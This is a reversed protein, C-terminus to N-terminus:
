ECGEFYLTDEGFLACYNGEDSVRFAMCKGWCPKRTFPCMQEYINSFVKM